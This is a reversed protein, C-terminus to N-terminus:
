QLEYGWICKSLGIVLFSVARLRITVERPSPVHSRTKVTPNPVQVRLSSVEIDFTRVVIGM